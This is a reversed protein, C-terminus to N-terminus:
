SEYSVHAYSPNKRKPIITATIKSPRNMDTLRDLLCIIAHKKSTEIASNKKELIIGANKVPETADKRVTDVYKEVRPWIGSSIRSLSGRYMLKGSTHALM